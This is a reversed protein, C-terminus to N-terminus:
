RALPWCEAEEAPRVGSASAALGRRKVHRPPAQWLLVARRCRRNRQRRRRARRCQRSCRARWLQRLRLHSESGSATPSSPSAPADLSTAAPLVELKQPQLPKLTTPVATACSTSLLSRPPLDLASQLLARPGDCGRPSTSCYGALSRLFVLVPDGHLLSTAMAAQSQIMSCILIWSTLISNKGRGAM